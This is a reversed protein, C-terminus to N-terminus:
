PQGLLEKEWDELMAFQAAKLEEDTLQLEERFKWLLPLKNDIFLQMVNRKGIAEILEPLIKEIFSADQDTLCEFIQRSFKKYQEQSLNLVQIKELAIWIYRSSFLTEFLENKEQEDMQQIFVDLHSSVVRSLGADLMHQIIAGAGERSTEIITKIDANRDRGNLLNRIRDDRISIAREVGSCYLFYLNENSLQGGEKVKHDIAALEKNLELTRYSYEGNPLTKLKDMTIDIMCDEINQGPLIGRIEAVNEDEMRIAIRPTTYRGDSGASYYVFFDGNKLQYSATISNATCWGTSHGKLSGALRKATESINIDEEYSEELPDDRETQHFVVWEGRTEVLVESRTDDFEELYQAYQKAFSSLPQVKGSDSTSSTAEAMGGFVNALVEANLEAFPSVTTETRKRYVYRKKDFTGMKLVGDWVMKRFWVPYMAVVADSSLYEAWESLSEAQEDRIEEIKAQRVRDSIYVEGHGQDYAIQRQLDFYSEPVNEPKVLNYSIQREISAKNGTLIGDNVYEDSALFGLYAGIRDAPNDAVKEGNQRLYRVSDDVEVSTHFKPNQRHLIQEGALNKHAM